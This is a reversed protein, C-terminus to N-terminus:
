HLLRVAEQYYDTKEQGAECSQQEKEELQKDKRVAEKRRKEQRLGNKETIKTVVMAM